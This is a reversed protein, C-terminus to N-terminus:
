KFKDMAKELFVRYIECIYRYTKLIGEIDRYVTISPKKFRLLSLAEYFHTLFLDINALIYKLVRDRDVVDGINKIASGIRDLVEGALRFRRFPMNNLLIRRFNFSYRSVYIYEFFPEVYELLFRNLPSIYLDEGVRFFGFYIPSDDGSVVLIYWGNGLSGTCARRGAELIWLYSGDFGIFGEKSLISICSSVDRFYLNYLFCIDYLDVRDFVLLPCLVKICNLDFLIGSM